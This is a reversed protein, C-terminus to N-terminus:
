PASAALPAPAPKVAVAPLAAPRQETARNWFGDPLSHIALAALILLIAAGVMPKIAAGLLWRPDARGPRDRFPQNLTGAVHDLAAPDAQPLLALVPGPEIKLSRCVTQALARTFAPGPLDDYRDNELADLKRPTVKIAAALAAIHLGQKERAARLMAGASHYGAARDNM